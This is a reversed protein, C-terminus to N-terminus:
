RLVALRALNLQVTGDRAGWDGYWRRVAELLAVCAERGPEARVDRLEALSGRRRPPAARSLRRLQLQRLAWLPVSPSEESAPAVGREGALRYLEEPKPVNLSTDTKSPRVWAECWKLFRERSSGLDVHSLAACIDPLAFALPEAESWLGERLLYEIDGLYSELMKSSGRRAALSAESVPAASVADWEQGGHSSM